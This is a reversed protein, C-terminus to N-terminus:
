QHDRIELDRATEPTPSAASTVHQDNNSPNKGSASASGSSGGRALHNGNAQGYRVASDSFIGDRPLTQPNRVNPDQCLEPVKAYLSYTTRYDANSSSCSVYGAAGAFGRLDGNENRFYSFESYGASYLPGQSDIGSNSEYSYQGPFDDDPGERVLLSYSMDRNQNSAFAVFTAICVLIAITFFATLRKM